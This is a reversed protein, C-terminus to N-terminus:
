AMLDIIQAEANPQHPQIRKLRQSLPIVAYDM